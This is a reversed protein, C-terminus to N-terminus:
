DEIEDPMAWQQRKSELYDELTPKLARYEEYRDLQRISKGCLVAVEAPRLEPMVAVVLGAQRGPPLELWRLLLNIVANRQPRHFKRLAEVAMTFARDDDLGPIRVM